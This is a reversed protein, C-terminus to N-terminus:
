IQIVWSFIQRTPLESFIERAQNFDAANAAELGVVVQNLYPIEKIVQVMNKLAPRALDSGPMPIILSIPHLNNCQVLEQEMDAIPRHKFNHFTTVCSNQYFDGM